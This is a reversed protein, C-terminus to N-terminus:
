YNDAQEDIESWLAVYRSKGTAFDALETSQLLQVHGDVFAFNAAGDPDTMSRNPTSRHRDFAIQSDREGFRGYSWGVGDGAGFREGPTTGVWGIAAESVWGMAPSGNDPAEVESWSELALIIQSSRAVNNKFLKGPPEASDLDARVFSSVYSSAYVNMAYSRIGDELDSPCRLVGNGMTGDTLLLPTTIWQGIQSQQYWYQEIEKSNSPFAGSYENSYGILATAIQNLNSACQVRYASRRAAALAPLLIAILLAVIGIVVL